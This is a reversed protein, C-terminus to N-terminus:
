VYWKTKNNIYRELKAFDSSNLKKGVIVLWYFRGNFPLSTWWRRFLFLPYNGFASLTENWSATVAPNTWNERYTISTAAPAISWDIDWAFVTTRIWQAASWYRYHTAATRKTAFAFTWAVVENLSLEFSWLNSSYNVSFEFPIQTWSTSNVRLWTVLTLKNTSSFNIANSQMWDDIWDTSLYFPFWVADYDTSHNVRQYPLQTEATQKIEAWWVCISGVDALLSNSVYWTSNQTPTWTFTFRQWETTATFQSSRVVWQTANYYFLSFTKTWSDTKAWISMTLSGTLAITRSVSSQNSNTFNLRDAALTWIPSTTYNHDVTISSKAWYSDSFDETKEFFNYRAKLIPRSTATTQYASNSQVEKVSLSNITLTWAWSLNLYLRTASSFIVPNIIDINFDWVPVLVQGDTSWSSRIFFASTTNGSITIKATKWLLPNVYILVWGGSTTTVTNITRWSVWWTIDWTNLDIPQPILESWLVLNKSKDLILWVPQEAWTVPTVWTADQFMTINSFTNIEKVSISTIELNPTWSSFWNFWTTTTWAVFTYITRWTNIVSSPLLESSWWTYWISFRAVSNVTNHIVLVVYQKGIVTTLSKRLRSTNGNSVLVAWTWTYDIYAPATSVDVWDTWDSSFDWNTILEDWVSSTWMERISINDLTITTWTGFNRPNFYQYTNNAVFTTENFWAAFTWYAATSNYYVTISASTNFSLKYRKWPVFAITQSARATGTTNILNLQWGTVTIVWWASSWDFWWTLWQSFDWNTVLEPWLNNMYKNIDSPDYWVGQEWAYFLERPNFKKTGIFQYKKSDM